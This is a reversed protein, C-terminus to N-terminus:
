MGQLLARQEAELRAMENNQSATPAIVPLGAARRAKNAAARAQQAAMIFNTRTPNRGAINAAILARRELIMIKLASRNEPTITSKSSNLAVEAARLKQYNTSGNIAARINAASLRLNYNPRLGAVREFTEDNENSETASNEYPGGPQIEGIEGTFPHRGLPLARGTRAARAAVKRSARLLYGAVRPHATGYRNMLERTSAQRASMNGRASPVVVGETARIFSILANKSAPGYQGAQLQSITASRMARLANQTLNNTFIAGKRVLKNMVKGQTQSWLASFHELTATIPVPDLGTIAKFQEQTTIPPPFYNGHRGIFTDFTARLDAPLSQQYAPANRQPNIVGYFWPVFYAVLEWCVEAGIVGQQQLRTLIIEMSKMIKMLQYMEAPVSEPKGLGIKLEIIMIIYCIRGNKTVRRVIVADPKGFNWGKYPTNRPKKWNLLPTPNGRADVRSAPDSEQKLIDVFLKVNPNNWQNRTFSKITTDFPVESELIVTVNPAWDDRMYKAIGAWNIDGNMGNTPASSPQKWYVARAGPTTAAGIEFGVTELYDGLHSQTWSGQPLHKIKYNLAAAAAINKATKVDANPTGVPPRSLLGSPLISTKSGLYGNLASKLHPDNSGLLAMVSNPTWSEIVRNKAKQIANAKAAKFSQEWAKVSRAVANRSAGNGLVYKVYSEKLLPLPVRQGFVVPVAITRTQGGMVKFKIGANNFRSLAAAIEQPTKGNFATSKVANKSNNNNVNANAGLRKETLEAVRAVKGRARAEAVRKQKAVEPGPLKKFTQLRETAKTSM